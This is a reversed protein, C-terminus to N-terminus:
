CQPFLMRAAHIGEEVPVDPCPRFTIGLSAAAELRSRGSAFERVQIDQPAWHEGYTYGRQDWTTDVRLVAEIPVTCVRGATRAAELEKAFIVGKAKPTTV